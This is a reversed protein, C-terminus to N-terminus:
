TQAYVATIDDNELAVILDRMVDLVRLLAAVHLDLLRHAVREERQGLAQVGLM